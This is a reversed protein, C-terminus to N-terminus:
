NFGELYRRIGVDQSSDAPLRVAPSDCDAYKLPGEQPANFVSNKESVNLNSEQNLSPFGGVSFTRQPQSTVGEGGSPPTAM